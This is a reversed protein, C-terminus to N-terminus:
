AASESRGERFWQLFLASDGCSCPLWVSSCDGDSGGGINCMDFVAGHVTFCSLSLVRITTTTTTPGMLMWLRWREADTSIHRLKDNNGNDECCHSARLAPAAAILRQDSSGTDWVSNGTSKGLELIFGSDCSIWIEM